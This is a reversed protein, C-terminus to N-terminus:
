GGGCWFGLAALLLCVVLSGYAAARDLRRASPGWGFHEGQRHWLCFGAPVTLLGFLWLLWCPSGLRLIDGADGIGEWSGVGLYLGNAVLCFGAFFRGLFAWRLRLGRVCLWLGLPAGVGFVPGAWAVWLPQPNDALDTRSLSLPHLVVRAVTGGTAKAALVHGLEHVQQMGLWAGVVASVILLCHEFRRM